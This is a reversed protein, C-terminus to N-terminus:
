PNAFSLELSFYPRQDEVNFRSPHKREMPVEEDDDMLLSGHSDDENRVENNSDESNDTSENINEVDSRGAGDDEVKNSEIDEKEMFFNYAIEGNEAVENGEAVEDIPPNM